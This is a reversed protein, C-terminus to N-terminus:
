LKAKGRGEKREVKGRGENVYRPNKSQKEGDWEKDEM